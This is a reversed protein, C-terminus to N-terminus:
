HMNKKECYTEPKKCINAGVQFIQLAIDKKNYSLNQDSLFSFLCSSLIKVITHLIFIYM